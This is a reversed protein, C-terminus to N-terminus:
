TPVPTKRVYIPKGLLSYPHVKDPSYDFYAHFKRAASIQVANEVALQTMTEEIGKAKKIYELSELLLSKQAVSNSKSAALSM